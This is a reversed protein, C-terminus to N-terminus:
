QTSTAPPSPWVSQQAPASMQQTQQPPPGSNPWASQQQSGDSPASAAPKPGVSIHTPTSAPARAVKPKPKPKPKEEPVAAATTGTTAPAAAGGPGADAAPNNEAAQDPPPQYGKMLEPPVGATTGPVGNPFVPQRDGKLKTKSNFMDGTFMTTPDFQGGPTCAALLWILAGVSAVRVLGPVHPM